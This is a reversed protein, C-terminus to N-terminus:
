APQPAPSDPAAPQRRFRRGGLYLAIVAPMLVVHYAGYLGLGLFGQSGLPPMLSAAIILIIGIGMAFSGTGDRLGRLSLVLLLLLVASYYGIVAFFNDSVSVVWATAAFGLAGLGIVIRRWQGAMFHGTTALLMGFSALVITIRTAIVLGRHGPHAIPQFFGHDIAGLMSAMGMLVLTFAWYWAPSKPMVDARFSLGALLFLECALIVDTLASLALDTLM